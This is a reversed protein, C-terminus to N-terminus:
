TTISHLLYSTVHLSLTNKVRSREPILIYKSLSGPDLVPGCFSLTLSLFVSRGTNAHLIQLEHIWGKSTQLLSVFQLYLLYFRSLTNTNQKIRQLAIPYLPKCHQVTNILTYNNRTQTLCITIVTTSIVTYYAKIIEVILLLKILNSLTSSVSLASSLGLSSHHMPFRLTSHFM